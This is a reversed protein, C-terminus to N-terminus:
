QENVKYLIYILILLLLVWFCIWFPFLEKQLDLAIEEKGSDIKKKRKEKQSSSEPEDPDSFLKKLEPVKRVPKWVPMGAKWVLTDPTIRRDWKLDQISYPGESHNEIQIFWIKGM